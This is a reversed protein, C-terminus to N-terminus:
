PDITPTGKELREAGIAAGAARTMNGILGETEAGRGGVAGKAARPSLVWQERRDIAGVTRVHAAAIGRCVTKEQLVAEEADANWQRHFRFERDTHNVVRVPARDGEIGFGPLPIDRDVAPGQRGGIKG